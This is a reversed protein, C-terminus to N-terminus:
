KLFNILFASLEVYLLQTLSDVDSRSLCRSIDLSLEKAYLASLCFVHVWYSKPNENFSEKLCGPTLNRWLSPGDRVRRGVKLWKAWHSLSVGSGPSFASALNFELSRRAEAAWLDMWACVFVCQIYIIFKFIWGYLSAVYVWAWWM